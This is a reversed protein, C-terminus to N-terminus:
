SRRHYAILSNGLVPLGQRVVKAEPFLNRMTNASLLRIEEYEQLYGPSFRVVRRQLAPSLFQYFPLFTHPELPFYKNPTTVFYGKRAVRRIENAFSEQRQCNGVHEIVANSFVWDFSYSAFPLVCGDAAIWRVHGCQQMRRDQPVRLNIVTVSEFSRYLESFEGAIGLGGGVDLLSCIQTSKGALEHFTKLKQRRLAIHIPKVLGIVKSRTWRPLVAAKVSM